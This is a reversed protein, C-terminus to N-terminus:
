LYTDVLEGTFRSFHALEINDSEFVRTPSGLKNTEDICGYINNLSAICTKVHLIPDRFICGFCTDNSNHVTGLTTMIAGPIVSNNNAM